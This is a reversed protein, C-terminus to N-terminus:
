IVHQHLLENCDVSATPDQLLCSTALFSWDLLLNWHRADLDLEELYYAGNVQGDQSGSAAMYSNYKSYMSPHMM